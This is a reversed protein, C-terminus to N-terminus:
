DRTRARGVILHCLRALSEQNRPKIAAHQLSNPLLTGPGRMAHERMVIRTTEPGTATLELTIHASGVPWLRAELELRRPPEAARVVTVDKATFPWPGVSHHIRSGVAPWDPDVDRIHSAGVVWGAYLWGDSLVAFAREIDAPVIIEADSM